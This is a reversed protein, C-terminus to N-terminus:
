VFRLSINGVRLLRFNVYRQFVFLTECNIDFISGTDMDDVTTLITEIEPNKLNKENTCDNFKIFNYKIAECNKAFKLFISKKAILSIAM